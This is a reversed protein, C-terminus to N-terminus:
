IRRNERSKEDTRGIMDLNINVIINEIPVPCNNLFHRSGYLGLEEATYLIFIVSRRPPSMVVAEAVELVGASGSANDDAGNYVEEGISIHDLHAGVTVYEEKLETDTGEVMAVVNWSDIKKEKLKFDFTITVEKLDFTKYNELGTEGIEVPSYEQGIFLAKIFDEKVIVSSVNRFRSMRRAPSNVSGAYTLRTGEAASRIKEWSQASSKGALNIVVAPGRRFIANRKRFEGTRSTYIKHRVEPLVPKDNRMPAGPLVVVAKGELELGEFDNWDSDSDEIGYGVFVVPLATGSFDKMGVATFKFNDNHKFTFEKDPGKIVVPKLNEMKRRTFPVAQLFSKDGKSGAIIPKLGATEFEKEAYKAAKNYEETGTVRGKMEDSALFYVHDKLEKITITEAKSQQQARCSQLSLVTLSNFSVTLTVISIIINLKNKKM